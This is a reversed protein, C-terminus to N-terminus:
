GHTHPLECFFTVGPPRLIQPTYVVKAPSSFFSPVNPFASSKKSLYVPGQSVLLSGPYLQSLTQKPTLHTSGAEPVLDRWTAGLSSQHCNLQKPPETKLCILSKLFEFAKQEPHHKHWLTHEPDGLSRRGAMHRRCMRQLKEPGPQHSTHGRPRLLSKLCRARGLVTQKDM